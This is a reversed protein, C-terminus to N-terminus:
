AFIQAANKKAAFMGVNLSLWLPLRAPEVSELHTHPLYRRVLQAMAAYDFGRRGRIARPVRDMRGLLANWFQRANYESRPVGSLKSGLAKLFLPIGKENPMTSLICGGDNLKSSIARVYSEVESPVLYEFTELAIAVDFTGPVQDVDEHRDSRHFEFNPSNQFRLRAADLGYARGNLWGSRWGADLGVYRKVPVPVYDLSRADNCGIELITVDPKNLSALKSKLWEFRRTHHFAYVRSLSRMKRTSEFSPIETADIGPRVSM